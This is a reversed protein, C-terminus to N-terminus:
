MVNEKKLQLMLLRADEHMCYIIGSSLNRKKRLGIASLFALITYLKPRESHLLTLVIGNCRKFICQGTWGLYVSEFSELLSQIVM